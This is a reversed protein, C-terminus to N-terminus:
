PQSRPPEIANGYLATAPPLRDFVPCGVGRNRTIFNVQPLEPLAAMRAYRAAYVGGRIKLRDFCEERIFIAHENGGRWIYRWHWDPYFFVTVGKECDEFVNSDIVNMRGGNVNIAGFFATGCRRFTNGAVTMGSINGDFRIAAQGCDAFGGAKGCDEFLNGLFRCGAYSPNRYMDIAANDDCEYVARFVHNSAFLHDNGELRVVSSPTDHMSCGTIEVGVGGVLISPHVRGYRSNRAVECRRIAHGGPSLTQRDGGKMVIATHGTDTVTSDEITVGHGGDVVLATTGFGKFSCGRVAVNECNLLSLGGASGGDFAVGHLVFDRLGEAAFLDGTAVSVRVDGDAKPWVYLKKEANDIYWEGPRDLAELANLFWFPNGPEARDITKVRPEDDAEAVSMVVAGTEPDISEVRSALDAWYYTWYGRVMLDRAGAFRSLSPDDSFFGHEPKEAEGRQQFGQDTMLGRATGDPKKVRLFGENPYKAIDLAEGAEIVVTAPRKKAGFGFIPMPRFEYGQVSSLDAVRVFPRAEPVIRALAAPDTVPALLGVPVAGTVIPKEDKWASWVAGSDEAGLSFTGCVPYLGGRLHVVARGGAALHPRVADRARELSRFPREITGQNADDGDPSVFVEMAGGAPASVCEVCGGAGDASAMGCVIEEVRTGKAVSLAEERECTAEEDRGSAALADALDLGALPAASLDGCMISSRRLDELFQTALAQEGAGALAKAFTPAFDLRGDPESFDPAQALRARAIRCAGAVDRARLRAFAVGERWKALTMPHLAIAPDDAVDALGGFDGKGASDLAAALAEARPDDARKAAFFTATEDEGWARRAFVFVPMELPYYTYGIATRNVTILGDAPPVFSGACEAEGIRGGDADLTMTRGDWRAVVRCWRGPAVAGDSGVVWSAGGGPNGISFQLDYRGGAASQVRVSFGNKTSTGANAIYGPIAILTPTELTRFEAAMTFANPACGFPMSLSDFGPNCEVVSESAPDENAHALDSQKM